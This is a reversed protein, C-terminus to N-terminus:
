TAIGAVRSILCCLLSPRAFPLGTPKRASPPGCGRSASACSASGAGGSANCSQGAPGSPCAAGRHQRAAAPGSSGAEPQEAASCGAAERFSAHAEQADQASPQQGSGLLNPKCPAGQQQKCRRTMEVINTAIWTHSICPQLDFTALQQSCALTLPVISAQYECFAM